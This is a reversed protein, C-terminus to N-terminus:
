LNLVMSRLAFMNSLKIDRHVLEATKHLFEVANVLEVLLQVPMSIMKGPKSDTSSSWRHQSPTQCFPIGRPNVVLTNETDGVALLNTFTFLKGDENHRKLAKGVAKLNTLERDFSSSDQHIKVLFSMNQRDKFTGQYVRGFRGHGVFEQWVVTQESNPEPNLTLPM